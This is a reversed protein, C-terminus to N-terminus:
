QTAKEIMKDRMAQPSSDAPAPKPVKPSEIGRTERVVIKQNAHDNCETDSFVTKGNIVCRRLQAGPTNGTAAAIASSAGVASAASTVASSLTSAVGAEKLAAGAPKMLKDAGEAFLNREYRMSFLGAMVVAALGAMILAVAILSLGRQRHKM